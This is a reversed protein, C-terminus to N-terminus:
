VDDDEAVNPTEGRELKAIVLAGLQRSALQSEELVFDPNLDWDSPYSTREGALLLEVMKDDLRYRDSLHVSRVTTPEGPQHYDRLELSAVDDARWRGEGFAEQALSV